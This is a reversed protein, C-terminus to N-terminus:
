STWSSAPLSGISSVIATHDRKQALASSTAALMATAALAAYLARTLHSM